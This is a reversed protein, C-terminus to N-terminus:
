TSAIPESKMNGIFHLIGLTKFSDGLFLRIVYDDTYHPKKKFFFDDFEKVIFEKGDPNKNLTLLFDLIVQEKAEENSIFGTMPKM